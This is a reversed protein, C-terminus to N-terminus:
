GARLVARASGGDTIAIPRGAPTDVTKSPDLGLQWAVTAFLDPVSLPDQVVTEGRADTAGHVLGGRIGGGALVASQAKPHHDRGERGNIRPSRGFDGIWLVLTTDLLEREALDRLLSAMAPDLDAMLKRSRTFNDQHTDWGNSRVEIYSVGHEVLRRALLCGRGFQSDGYRTQVAAPEDKFDFAKTEPSLVLKSAKDYLQRHNEVGVEAGRERFEGELQGLLGLRRNMRTDAVPAGVNSPLQGPNNVVFPEFDVGLFGAGQTPGISVVAPLDNEPDAIQHAVAS